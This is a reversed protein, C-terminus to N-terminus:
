ASLSYLRRLPGSKKGTTKNQNEWRLRCYIAVFAGGGRKKERYQLISIHESVIYL